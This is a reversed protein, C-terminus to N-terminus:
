GSRKYGLQLVGLPVDDEDCPQYPPPPLPSPILRRISYSTGSSLSPANSSNPTSTPSFTRTFRSNRREQILEPHLGETILVHHAKTITQHILLIERLRRHECNRLKQLGQFYAIKSPSARSETIINSIKNPYTLLRSVHSSELTVDKNSEM